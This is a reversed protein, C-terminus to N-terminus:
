TESSLISPHRSSLWDQAPRMGYTVSIIAMVQWLLSQESSLLIFRDRLIGNFKKKYARIGSGNYPWVLKELIRLGNSLLCYIQDYDPRLRAM